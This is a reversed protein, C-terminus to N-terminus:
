DLSECTHIHYIIENFLLFDNKGQTGGESPPGIRASNRRDMAETYGEEKLSTCIGGM